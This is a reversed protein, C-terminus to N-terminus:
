NVMVLKPKKLVNKNRFLAHKQVTSEYIDLKIKLVPKNNIKNGKQLLYYNYYDEFAAELL